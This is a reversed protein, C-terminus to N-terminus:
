LGLRLCRGNNGVVLGCMRSLLGRSFLVRSLLGTQAYRKEGRLVHHSKSQIHGRRSTCEDGALEALTGHENVRGLSRRRAGLM